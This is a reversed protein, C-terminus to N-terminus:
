YNHVHEVPSCSKYQITIYHGGETPIDHWTLIALNMDQNDQTVKGLMNKAIKVTAEAKGNSQNHYPSSTVHNFGWKANFEEYVQAPGNDKSTYWLM